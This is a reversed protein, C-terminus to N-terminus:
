KKPPQPENNIGSKQLGKELVALFAKETLSLTKNKLQALFLTNQLQKKGTDVITISGADLEKKIIHKPIIGLGVSCRIGSIVSQHDDTTLVYDLDFPTKRFHHHFWDALSINGETCSIYELKKLSEYDNAGNIKRQYYSKSCAIVCEEEFLKTYTYLYRDFQKKSRAQTAKEVVAFNLLGQSVEQLLIENSDQKLVFTVTPFRFRFHGCIIPLYHRAFVPHSGIRLQGYPTDLPRRLYRVENQLECIFPTVQKHLRVAAPTPILKKNARTFLPIKLEQELKKLQQSVAPQSINLERAAGSVSNNLYVLSFIKLRNLDPLM